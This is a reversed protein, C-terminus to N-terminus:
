NLPGKTELKIIKLIDFIINYVYWRTIWWALAVAYLSLLLTPHLCFHKDWERNWHIYLIFIDLRHQSSIILNLFKLKRTLRWYWSHMNYHKRELLAWVQFDPFGNESSAEGLMEPCCATDNSQEVLVIKLNRWNAKWRTTPQGIQGLLLPSIAKRFEDCLITLLWDSFGPALLQLGRGTKCICKPGDKGQVM